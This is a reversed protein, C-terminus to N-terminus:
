ADIVQFASPYGLTDAHRRLLSLSIAHFTGSTVGGGDDGIMDNLRARMEAAAKNTFTVALIRHPAIHCAEILHAIRHVITRTKGSGAGALILQPGDGAEAAQQQAPNLQM